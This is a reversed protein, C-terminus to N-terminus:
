SESKTVCNVTDGRDRGGTGAPLGQPRDVSRHGRVVSSSEWLEPVPEDWESSKVSLVHIRCDSFSKFPRFIFM